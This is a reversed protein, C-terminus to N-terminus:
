RTVKGAFLDMQRTHTLCPWPVIRERCEPAGPSRHTSYTSCERCRGDIGPKHREAEELAALRDPDTVPEENSGPCRGYPIGDVTGRHPALRGDGVIRPRAACFGCIGRHPNM